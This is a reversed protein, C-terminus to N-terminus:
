LYVERYRMKFSPAYGSEVWESYATGIQNVGPKLYFDEWDNGLAGLDPRDLDNLKVDASACSVTLIDNSNFKNQVDHWETTINEITDTVTEKYNRVMKMRYLGNYELRPSTKHNAFVVTVKTVAKSAVADVAYSHKIGGVNFSVTRGKKTISSSKVSTVAKINKKKNAARNTGFYKNHYSLDLTAERQIVGNVIMRYKGNTGDASKYIDVGAVITGDSASLIMQFRGRQKKDDKASGTCMKQSYTFEFDTAAESFTYTATPGHWSSGSGFESATLYYTGEDTSNQSHKAALAGSISSINYVVGGNLAYKSKVSGWGGSQKFSHNLLVQTTPVTYTNSTEDVVTIMEETMEDPNGFQLIKEDDDLFAVYGCRGNNGEEGTETEYFDVELDPFSPFTGNYDVVFTSNDDASPSVEYEKVSYKFPDTCLFEIEGTVINRGPGVDSFNSPTGIFYKDQEDAFILEAEEVNLISNLQNYADRFAKNSDAELKYGVIITRAPYRKSQLMSGNRIGTELTALEPSLAERGSVYLTRYGSIINEIYEGNIQLAESPLNTGSQIETVDIFDYM